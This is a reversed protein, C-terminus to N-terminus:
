NPETLFTGFGVPIDQESFLRVIVSGGDSPTSDVLTLKLDSLTGGVNGTLFEFGDSKGNTLTDSQNGVPQSLNNYPITDVM